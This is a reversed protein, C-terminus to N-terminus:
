PTVTPLRDEEIKDHQTHALAMEKAEAFVSEVVGFQTILKVCVREAQSRAEIARALQDELLTARVEAALVRDACAKMQTEHEDRIAAITEDLSKHLASM